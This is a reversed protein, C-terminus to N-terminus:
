TPNSFEENNLTLRCDDCVGKEFQEGIQPFAGCIHCSWGNEVCLNEWVTARRGEPTETSM